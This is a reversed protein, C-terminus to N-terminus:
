KIFTCSLTVVAEGTLGTAQPGFSTVSTHGITASQNTTTTFSTTTSETEFAISGNAFTSGEYIVTKYNTCSVKDTYTPQSTIGIFLLTAVVLIAITISVIIRRRM